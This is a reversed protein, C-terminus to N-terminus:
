ALLRPLSAALLAIGSLTLFSLVLRRFGTASIRHYLRAGLLTLLLVCVAVIGLLPLMPRTIMGHWLYLLMTVAQMALNFHQIIARQEEKEMGRLSCWLTPIVGSFGGIGGMFGGIVGIMGNLPAGGFRLRPLRNMVLMTPCWIALLLGLALRFLDPNLMPLLWVGLPIGALGGGIFPLVQRWHIQHRARLAMLAALLQGQLSGYVVLVAALAPDINWIWFSMAVLGFAFGSLGQVFGAVAAGTAVILITTHM